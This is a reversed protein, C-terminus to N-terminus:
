SEHNLGFKKGLAIIQASFRGQRLFCFDKGKLTVVSSSQGSMEQEREPSRVLELQDQHKEYLSKIKSFEHTAAEGTVNFSTSFLPWPLHAGAVNLVRVGLWEPSCFFLEQSSLKVESCPILLTSEYTFFHELFPTLERKYDWLDRVQTLHRFLISVPRPRDIKKIRLLHEYARHNQYHAGIGWVTDTPYLFLEKKM